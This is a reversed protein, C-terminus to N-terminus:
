GAHPRADGDLTRAMYVAVEGQNPTGRYLTTDFGCIDLGLCRCAAIAPYNASSVQLWLTAAGARRAADLAADILRRAAGRRRYPRDVALYSLALRRQPAAVSWAAFGRVCDDLVAVCGDTWPQAALDIPARKGHPAVATTPALAVVNGSRHVAYIQDSAYSTDLRSVADRDREADYARILWEGRPRAVGDGDRRANPDVAM